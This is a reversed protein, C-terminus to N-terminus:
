DHHHRGTEVDFCFSFSTQIKPIKYVNYYRKLRLVANTYGIDLYDHVIPIAVSVTTDTSDIVADRDQTIGVKAEDIETDVHLLALYRKKNFTLIIPENWQLNPKGQNLYHSTWSAYGM